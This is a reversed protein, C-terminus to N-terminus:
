AECGYFKAYRDLDALLEAKTAYDAGVHRATEWPDPKRGYYEHGPGAADYTERAFIRWLGPSQKGFALETYRTPTITIGTSTQM